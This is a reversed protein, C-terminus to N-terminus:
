YLDFNFKCIKNQIDQSELDFDVLFDFFGMVQDIFNNEFDKFKLFKGVLKKNLNMKNFFWDDINFVMRVEVIAEGYSRDQKEMEKEKFGGMPDDIKLFWPPSLCDYLTSNVNEKQVGIGNEFKIICREQPSDVSTICTQYFTESGYSFAESGSNSRFLESVLEYKDSGDITDNELNRLMTTTIIGNKLLTSLVGKYEERKEFREDIFNRFGETFCMLYSSLDIPKGDSGFFQQGYNTMHFLKIKEMFLNNGKEMAKQFLIKYSYEEESSGGGEYSYEEELTEQQQIEQFMASFPRRSMLPLRGKADIQDYLEYNQLTEALLSGDTYRKDPTMCLLTLAHLFMLGSEPNICLENFYEWLTEQTKTKSIKLLVDRHPLCAQLYANEGFLSLYLPITFSLPHQITAQPSFVPVWDAFKIPNIQCYFSICNIFADTKSLKYLEFIEKLFFYDRIQEQTLVPKLPAQIIMDELLTENSFGSKYKFGLQLSNLYPKLADAWTKFTTRKLPNDPSNLITGLLNLSSVTGETCMKLYRREQNSFADKVFEIDSGDIEIHFLHKTHSRAYLSRCIEFVVADTAGNSVLFQTLFFFDKVQELTPTVIGFIKFIPKKQFHLDRLAWKCLGSSEQLELGLKFFNLRNNTTANEEPDDMAVAQYIPSCCILSIIIILKRFM